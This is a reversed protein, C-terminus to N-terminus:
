NFYRSRKPKFLQKEISSVPLAVESETQAHALALDRTMELVGFELQANTM